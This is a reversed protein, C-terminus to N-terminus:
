LRGELLQKILWIYWGAHKIFLLGDLWLFSMKNLFGMLHRHTVFLGTIRLLLQDLLREIDLVFSEFNAELLLVVEDLSLLFDHKLLSFCDNFQALFLSGTINWRLIM